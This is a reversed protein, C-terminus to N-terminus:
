TSISLVTVISLLAQGTNTDVLTDIDAWLVQYFCSKLYKQIRCGALAALGQGREHWNKLLIEGKNVKVGEAL